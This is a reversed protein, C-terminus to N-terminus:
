WAGSVLLSGPGVGFQTRVAPGQESKPSAVWLVIAGALAVGGVIFGATSVNGATRAEAALNVVNPATAGSCATVSGMPKCGASSSQSTVDGHDSISKIGFYTGVGVAALGVAGSAIALTRSLGLGRSRPATEGAPEPRSPAEGAPPAAPAAAIPPPPPREVALPPVTVRATTAGDTVSVKASWSRRGPASAVIAHSGADAPIPTDWEAAGIPTGDREIVLGDVRTEAPVEVVLNSLRPELAAARERGIRARELQGAARAKSALELYKTWATALKGAHEECDALNLLTGLGYELRLSEELKPCAEAYQHAAMAKRAQNFLAQAAASEDARGTAAFTIVALVAAASGIQRRGRM